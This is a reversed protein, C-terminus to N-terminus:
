GPRTTILNVKVKISNGNGDNSEPDNQFALYWDDYGILKLEKTIQSVPPSQWEQSYYHGVTIFPRSSVRPKPSYPRFDIRQQHTLLQVLFPSGSATFTVIAPSFTNRPVIICIFAPRTQTVLLTGDFVNTTETVDPSPM